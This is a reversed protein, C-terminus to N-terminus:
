SEWKPLSDFFKDMINRFKRSHKYFFRGIGDILILPIMIATVFGGVYLIGFTTM